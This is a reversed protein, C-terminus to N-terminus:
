PNPLNTAVIFSKNSKQKTGIVKLNVGFLEKDLERFQNHKFFYKAKTKQQYADELLFNDKIRIM